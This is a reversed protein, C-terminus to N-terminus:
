DHLFAVKLLAGHADQLRSLPVSPSTDGLSALPMISAARRNGKNYLESLARIPEVREFNM